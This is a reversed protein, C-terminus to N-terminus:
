QNDKRAKTDMGRDEGGLREKIKAMVVDNDRDKYRPFRYSNGGNKTDFRCVAKFECHECSDKNGQKFPKKDIKGDMIDGAIDKVKEMAFDTICRFTETDENTYGDLKLKADRKKEIEDLKSIKVFPDNMRYYYM